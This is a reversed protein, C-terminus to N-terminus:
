ADVRVGVAASVRPRFVVERYAYFRLVLALGLGIVNASVNDATPSTLGLVERSVWLCLLSVLLGLANAAAFLAAEGLAPRSSPRHRFTWYRSGLWSVTTAVTVSVVKAWLPDYVRLLNFIVVDFVFAVLGVTSFRTVEDRLRM